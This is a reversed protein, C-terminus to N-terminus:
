VCIRTPCRTIPIASMTKGPPDSPLSGAQLTPSRPGIAPDSLDGPSPFPLGSWHEQRSFEMSLPAQRAVTWPTVFLRVRRLTVGKGELCETAGPPMKPRGPPVLPLPGTQWRLPRSLHLSLGQTRLSGRLLAQCGVGANKGPSDWPCVLRTPEQRHPRWSHPM